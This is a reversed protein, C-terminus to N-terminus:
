RFRFIRANLAVVNGAAAARAERHLALLLEDLHDVAAGAPVDVRLALGDPDRGCVSPISL